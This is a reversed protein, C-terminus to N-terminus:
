LILWKRPNIADSGLREMRLRSSSNASFSIKFESIQLSHGLFGPWRRTLTTAAHSRAGDLEDAKFLDLVVETAAPGHHERVFQHVMM